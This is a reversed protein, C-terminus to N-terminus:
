KTEPGIIEGIPKGKLYVFSRKDNASPVFELWDCPLTPGNFFDVVCIDNWYEKDDKKVKSVLGQKEWYEIIGKIDNMNMSGERFLHEDYWYNNSAQKLSELIGSFGGIGKCQEIKEIPVIVNFFQLQIAM